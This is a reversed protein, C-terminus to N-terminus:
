LVHVKALSFNRINGDNQEADGSAPKVRHLRWMREM